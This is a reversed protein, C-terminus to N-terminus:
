LTNPLVLSPDTKRAAVWVNHLAKSFPDPFDYVYTTGILHAQTVSQSYHGRPQTFKTSLSCIFPGKDSGGIFKGQRNHNRPLRPLQCRIESGTVHLRWYMRASYPCSSSNTTWNTRGQLPMTSIFRNPKWLAPHKRSDVLNSNSHLPQNSTVNDRLTYYISYQYQGRRCLVISVRRVGLIYARTTFLAMVGTRTPTPQSQNCSIM